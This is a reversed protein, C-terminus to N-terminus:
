SPRSLGYRASLTNIIRKPNFYASEARMAGNVVHCRRRSITRSALPCAGSTSIWLERMLILIAGKSHEDNLCKM